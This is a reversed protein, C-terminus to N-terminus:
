SLLGRRSHQMPRNLNVRDGSLMGRRFAAEARPVVRRTASRLRIRTAKFAADVQRHKVLVLAGAEAKVDVMTREREARGDDLREALRIAMGHQFDRSARRLEHGSLGSEAARFAALETAMAREIIEFLYVSMAADPEFGFFVYRAREPDRHLWVRCDCFRAIAPVCADIPRRRLGGLAVELTVCAEERVDIEDMSLAYRELLSGVMAAAAMAEAETCGNSITKLSLAKIRAKVREREAKQSL